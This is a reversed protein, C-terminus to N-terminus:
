VASIHDLQKELYLGAKKEKSHARTRKATKERRVRMKQSEFIHELEKQM